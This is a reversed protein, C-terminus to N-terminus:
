GTDCGTVMIYREDRGSLYPYRLLRDLLKYGVYILLIWGIWGLLGVSAVMVRSQFFKDSKKPAM